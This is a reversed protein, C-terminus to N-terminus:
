RSQKINITTGGTRNVTQSINTGDQSLNIVSSAEKDVTIEAYSSIGNRYVILSMDDYVARLGAPRNFKAYGPLKQDELALMNGLLEANALDLANYLLNEELANVDLRGNGTLTLFNTDLGDFKLMDKDLFNIDLATKSQRENDARQKPPTLILMNNIQDFSLNIINPKSPNSERSGVKTSQFPKNMIVTGMSSTVMIEGTVCDKEIDKWGTPCSPLLIILSRGIEDVTLSFDTGRVGVTATPTEIKLNEPSHKAIQGSAFRATGLAIKLGLKGADQKTNDYVFSDIVLKSQETIEVRSDDKFTIGVKSNATVVADEMEVPSQVASPIVQRNRQIETPGSQTTVTGVTYAWCNTALIFLLITTQVWVRLM